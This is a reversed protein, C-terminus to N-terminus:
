ADQANSNVSVDSKGEKKSAKKEKREAQSALIGAKIAEFPAGGALNDLGLEKCMMPLDRMDVPVTWGNSRWVYLRGTYKGRYEFPLKKTYAVDVTGTAGFVPKPRGRRSM